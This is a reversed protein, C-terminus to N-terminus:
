SGSDEFGDGFVVARVLASSENDASDPDTIGPPAAVVATNVFGDGEPDTFSAEVTFSVSTQPPLDVPEDLSGTGGAACAAGAGQPTCSWHADDIEAPLLDLVIAGIAAGPGENAVVITYVVTGGDPGHQTAATKLVSLDAVDSPAGEVIGTAESATNNAPDPDEVSAIATVESYALQGAAGGDVDVSVLWLRQEGAPIDGLVCTPVGTPDGACGITAPAHVLESLNSSVVVDAAADPGHNSVVVSYVLTAGAAVPDADDGISISLDARPPPASGQGALPIALSGGDGTSLTLSGNKGGASAPALGVGFQVAQGPALLVP